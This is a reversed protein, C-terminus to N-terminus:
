NLAAIALVEMSMAVFFGTGWALCEKFADSISKGSERFIVIGMMLVISGFFVRLLLGAVPNMM